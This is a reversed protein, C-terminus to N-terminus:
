LEVAGSSMICSERCKDRATGVAVVSAAVVVDMTMRDAIKDRIGLLHAPTSDETTTILLRPQHHMNSSIIDMIVEMHVEITGMVPMTVTATAEVAVAKTLGLHRRRCGM